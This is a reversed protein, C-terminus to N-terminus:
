RWTCPWTTARRAGSRFAPAALRAGRWIARVAPGMAHGGSEGVTAAGLERLAALHAADVDTPAAHEPM